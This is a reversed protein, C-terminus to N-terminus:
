SKAAIVANFSIKGIDETIDCNDCRLPLKLDKSGSSEKVVHCGAVNEFWETSQQKSGERTKRKISKSSKNLM